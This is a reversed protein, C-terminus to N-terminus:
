CTSVYSLRSNPLVGLPLLDLDLKRCKALTGSARLLSRSVESGLHLAIMFLGLALDGLESRVLCRRRGRQALDVRM